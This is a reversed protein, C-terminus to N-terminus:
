NAYGVTNNSLNDKMCAKLKNFLEVDGVLVVSNLLNDAYVMGDTTITLVIHQNDTDSSAASAKFLSKMRKSVAAM